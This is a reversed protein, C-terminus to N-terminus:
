KKFEEIVNKLIVGIQNCANDLLPDFSVKAKGELTTFESIDHPIPYGVKIKEYSKEDSIALFNWVTTTQKLLPHLLVNDLFLQLKEKRKNLFEPKLKKVAKKPVPPIVYGPFQKVLM